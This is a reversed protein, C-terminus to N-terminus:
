EIKLILSTGRSSKLHVKHLIERSFRLQTSILQVQWYRHKFNNKKPFFILKKILNLPINFRHNELLYNDLPTDIQENNVWTTQNNHVINLEWPFDLHSIIMLWDSINNQQWSVKFRHQKTKSILSLQGNLKFAIPPYTDVKVQPRMQCAFLSIILPILATQRILPYLKIM